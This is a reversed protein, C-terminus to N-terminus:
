KCFKNLIDDARADGLEGAKRIDRCGAKHVGLALNTIGRHLYAVAYTPNLKIAQTYDQIAGPNDKLEYKAFGRFFFAEASQPYVEIAMNYDKIAGHYDKLKHKAIGKAIYAIAEKPNADKKCTSFIFPLLVLLIVFCINRKSFM